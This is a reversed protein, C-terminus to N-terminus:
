HPGGEHGLCCLGHGWSEGCSSSGSGPFRSTSWSKKWSLTHGEKAWLTGAKSVRFTLPLGTLRLVETGKSLRDATM